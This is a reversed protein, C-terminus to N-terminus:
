LVRQGKFRYGGYSPSFVWLNSESPQLFMDADADEDALTLFGMRSYVVNYLIENGNKVSLKLNGLYGLEYSKNVAKEILLHSCNRIGPHTCLLAVEPYIPENIQFHETNDYFFHIFLLIGIPVNEMYCVFYSYNNPDKKIYPSLELVKEIGEVMNRATRSRKKWLKQEDLEENRNTRQENRKGQKVRRPTQCLWGESILSDSIQRVSQLVQSKNVERVIPIYGKILGPNNYAVETNLIEIPPFISFSRRRPLANDSSLPMHSNFSHNRRLM